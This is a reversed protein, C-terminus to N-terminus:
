DRFGPIDNFNFYSSGDNSLGSFDIDIKPKKADEETLKQWGARLEEPTLPRFDNTEKM